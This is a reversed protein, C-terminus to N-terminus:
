FSRLAISADHFSPSFGHFSAMPVISAVRTITYKATWAELGYTRLLFAWSDLFSTPGMSIQQLSISNPTHSSSHLVGTLFAAWGKLLPFNSVSYILGILIGVEDRM